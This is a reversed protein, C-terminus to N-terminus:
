TLHIVINLYKTSLFASSNSLNKQSIKINEQKFPLFQYVLLFNLVKNIILKLTISFFILSKCIVILKGGGIFVIHYLLLLYTIMQMLSLSAFKFLM